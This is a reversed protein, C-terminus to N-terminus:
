AENEEIDNTLHPLAPKSLPSGTGRPNEPSLLSDPVIIEAHFSRTSLPLLGCRSAGM